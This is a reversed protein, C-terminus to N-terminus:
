SNSPSSLGAMQDVVLWFHYTDYKDTVWRSVTFLPDCSHLGLGSRTLVYDLALRAARGNGDVFPHYFCIDLYVRAARITPDVTNDNSEELCTKFRDLTSNKWGYRERGGKAFAPGTRLLKERSEGLVHQQWETLLEVSLDCQAFAAERCAALAMRMGSARAAAKVQDWQAIYAEHADAIVPTRWTEQSRKIEISRFKQWRVLADIEDVESEASQEIRQVISNLTSTITDQSPEMWSEFNGSVVEAVENRIDEREYGASELFWTLVISFTVYWADEAGTRELVFPLLERAALGVGEGSSVPDSRDRLAKFRGDLDTLFGQWDRVAAIVQTVSEERANAGNLLSDRSCCYERVPGGGGLAWNWGAIWIGFDAILANDLSSELQDKNGLYTDSAPIAAVCQRAISEVREKDLPSLGASMDEWSLKRVLILM